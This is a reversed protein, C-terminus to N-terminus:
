LLEIFYLLGAIISTSPRENVKNKYLHSTLVGESASLLLVGVTPPVAVAGPRVGDDVQSESTQINTENSPRQRKFIIILRYPIYKYKRFVIEMRWRCCRLSMAVEQENDM